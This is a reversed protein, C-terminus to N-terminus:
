DGLRMHVGLMLMATFAPQNVAEDADTYTYDQRPNEDIGDPTYYYTGHGYLKAQPYYEGGGTISMFVKSSLYIHLKLGLGVGWVDSNVYFAENNGIFAYYARYHNFRPGVFLHIEMSDTNKLEYSLNLYSIYNEGHKEITGGTNDNIFIKRASTADGPNPQQYYGFGLGIGLPIEETLQLLSIDFNVGLGNWYGTNLGIYFQLPSTYCAPKAYLAGTIFLATGILLFKKM